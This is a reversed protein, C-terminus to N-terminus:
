ACRKLVEVTQAALTRWSFQAAREFGRERLRRRLDADTAVREIATALETASRPDVLIAADGSVEPLSAANSSVVPTGCAMAELLPLGFGEYLSPFVFLEARNYLAVLTDEAVYGTWMVHRDLGLRAIRELIAGGRYHIQGVLVLPWDVGREHVLTAYADLLVGLNKRPQLNGVALIFREPLQLPALLARSFTDPQPRFADSAAEHTVSIRHPPLGYRHMLQERSFESVTLTHAAARISRPVLWRMREVQLRPLFEPHSEFSVDHVMLVVPCPSVPPAVYQFLAVDIRDRRLVIPFGVPVRLLPSRPWVRARTGIPLPDGDRSTHYCVFELAPDAVARLGALLERTYTENGTQRAGLTHVDLGIRVRGNSPPLRSM